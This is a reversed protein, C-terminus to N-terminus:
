YCWQKECPTGDDDGDMKVDPCNELFFKAEECSTMQSCYIRGDCKFDSTKYSTIDPVVTLSGSVAEVRECKTGPPVTGYIVSGDKTICKTMTKSEQPSLWQQVFSLRHQRYLQYGYWAIGAVILVLIIKRM